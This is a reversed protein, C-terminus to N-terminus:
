HRHAVAVKMRWFLQGFAFIEGDHEFGVAEYLRLATPNDPDVLLTPLLQATQGMMIAHNLLTRGIGHGRFAPDVALSDIYYEGSATEDAMENLDTGRFASLQSFTRLRLDRYGEGDYAVLLGVSQGSVEAITAHRYSYLTDPQTCVLSLENWAAHKEISLPLEYMEWHLAELVHRAIFTADAPMAPRLILPSSLTM